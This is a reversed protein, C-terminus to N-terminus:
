WVWGGVSRDDPRAEGNPSPGTLVQLTMTKEQHPTHTFKHQQFNQM